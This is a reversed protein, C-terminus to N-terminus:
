DAAPARGLLELLLDPYDTIIGDVGMAILEQMREPENVTWPIVLMGLEHVQEVLEGTVLEHKPSWIEAYDGAAAIAELEGQKDLIAAQFELQDGYSARAHRLASWEFSQLTLRGGLCGSCERQYDLIAQVYVDADAETARKLELNLQVSRDLDLAAALPPPPQIGELEPHCDWESVESASLQSILSSPEVTQGAWSCGTEHLDDDHGMVVVGDATIQMDAELTDVGYRLASRFSEITNGPPVNGRDGRHGQVDIQAVARSAEAARAASDPEADSSPSPPVRCAGLALM